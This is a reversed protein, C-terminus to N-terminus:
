FPLLSVWLACYLVGSEVLLALTREVQSRTSCGKLHSMILVRHEWARYAILLTAVMNTLLSLMAAAIGWGDAGFLSGITSVESTNMTALLLIVWTCLVLRHDKWLVWARWWVIADGI